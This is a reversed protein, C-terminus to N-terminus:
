PRCKNQLGGAVVVGNRIAVVGDTNKLTDAVSTTEADDRAAVPGCSVGDNGTCIDAKSSGSAKSM